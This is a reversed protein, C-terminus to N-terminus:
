GTGMPFDTLAIMGLCLLIAGFLLGTYVTWKNEAKVFINGLSLSGAKIKLPYNFSGAFAKKAVSFKDLFKSRNDGPKGAEASKDAPDIGSGTGV